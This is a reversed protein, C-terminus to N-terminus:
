QLLNSMRCLLIHVFESAFFEGKVEDMEVFHIARNFQKQM